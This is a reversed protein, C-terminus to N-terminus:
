MRVERTDEKINVGNFLVIGEKRLKEMFESTLAGNKIYLLTLDSALFVIIISGKTVEKLTIAYKELKYYDVIMYKIGKVLKGTCDSNGVTIQFRKYGPSTLAEEDSCYNTLDFASLDVSDVFEHYIKSAEECKATDVLLALMNHDYINWFYNLVKFLAAISTAHKFFNMEFLPVKKNKTAFCSKLNMLLNDLKVSSDVLAKQLNNIMEKFDTEIDELSKKESTHM